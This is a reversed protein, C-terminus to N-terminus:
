CHLNGAMNTLGCVGYLFPSAIVQGVPFLAIAVGLYITRVNDAITFYFVGSEPSLFLHSFVPFPLSFGIFGTFLTIFVAPM